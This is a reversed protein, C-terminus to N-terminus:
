PTLFDQRQPTFVDLVSGAKLCTVGHVGNSRFFLSDGPCFHVKKGEVTFEFEGSICYCVQEHVHSHEAGIGGAEFFVEVAMLDGGRARIKRSTKGDLVELPIKSDPFFIEEM